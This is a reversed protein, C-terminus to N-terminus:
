MCFSLSLNSSRWRGLGVGLRSGNGHFSIYFSLPLFPLSSLQFSTYQSFLRFRILIFQIFKRVQASRFQSCLPHVCFLPILPHPPSTLSRLCSRVSVDSSSRCSLCLSSSPLFVTHSLRLTRMFFHLALLPDSVHM